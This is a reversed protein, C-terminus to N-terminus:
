LVAMMSRRIPRKKEFDARYIVPTGKQDEKADDATNEVADKQEEKWNRFEQNMEEIWDDKKGSISIVMKM